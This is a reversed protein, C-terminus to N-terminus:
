FAIPDWLPGPWAVAPAVGRMAALLRSGSTGLVAVISTRVSNSAQSGVQEALGMLLADPRPVTWNNQLHEEAQSRTNNDASQLAQLLQSLEVVLNEPLLSMTLHSPPLQLLDLSTYPAFAFVPLPARQRHKQNDGSGSLLSSSSPDFM